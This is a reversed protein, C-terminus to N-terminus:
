FFGYLMKNLNARLQMKQIDTHKKSPNYGMRRRRRRSKDNREIKNANSKHFINKLVNHARISITAM